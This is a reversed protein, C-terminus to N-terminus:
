KLQALAREIAPLAEEPDDIGWVATEMPCLGTQTRNAIAPVEAAFEVPIEKLVALAPTSIVGAYLAKIGMLRYLFAAAKGVVKDAASFNRIDRGSRCLELLPRIGRRTDTLITDGHCFVCTYGGSELLQRARILDQNM